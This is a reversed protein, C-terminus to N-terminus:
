RNLGNSRYAGSGNTRSAGNMGNSKSIQISNNVSKVGSIEHVRNEVTQKAEQSDVNGSLTVVGNSVQANINPYSRSFWGGSLVENVKSKLEEDSLQAKNAGNRDNSGWSDDGLWSENSNNRNASQAGYQDQSSRNSGGFWSGNTNSRNTNQTNFQGQNARNANNQWNANMGSRNSHQTRNQNQMYSGAAQQQRATSTEWRTSRVGSIDSILEEIEERDDESALRGQLSVVGSQVSITLDSPMTDLDADRLNERIQLLIVRDNETAFRDNSRNFAANSGNAQGRFGQTQQSQSRFGQGQQHHPGYDASLSATTLAAACLILTAKNM